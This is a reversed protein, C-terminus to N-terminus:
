KLGEILKGVSMRGCGFRSLLIKDSTDCLRSKLVDASTKGDLALALALAGSVQPTAMSTGSLKEYKGGPVTSLINSGPASVFVSKPGYNSFSSKADSEDTSGVSIVGAYNAPYSPLRDNDAAENGAAAVVLVGKKIARQIEQDLLESRGGGGWSLSLVQAGQDVAYKISKIAAETTGSGSATLFKVPLIKVLPSIGIIGKGNAEAGIIGACHTGHKNDDMGNGRNRSFDYGYVDDVYGNGDDDVGTKGGLEAANVAINGKLDEHNYDVGTDIVAVLVERSGKTVKWAVDMGLKARSYDRQDGSPLPEDTPKPTPTITPTPTPTPTPRPRGFQATYIYNPECFQEACITAEEEVSLKRVEGDVMAILGDSEPAKEACATFVFISGLVGMKVLAQSWSSQMDIRKM